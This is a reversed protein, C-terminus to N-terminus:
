KAKMRAELEDFFNFVVDFNTVDDEEEGRQILLVRDDPLIAGMNPVPRYKGFDPFTLVPPEPVRGPRPLLVRMGKGQATAYYLDQGDRSWAFQAAGDQSLQVPEGISGDPHFDRLYLESRPGEKLIYALRRGDPSWQGMVVGTGGLPIRTLRGLPGGPPPVDFVALEGDLGRTILCLISSGDPAWSMPTIGEDSDERRCLLRPPERGDLRYEYVGDNPAGAVQFYAIRTGDPSWLPMDCDAGPVAIVRQSSASGRTSVWIEYIAESNTIVSAFRQGDPSVTLSREFPQREGSWDTVSGDLNVIIAHRNQIAAGGSAYVLTGNDALDVEAHTWLSNARLGGMIAVPEGRVELSKLDFPVALLNGGRTFILHGTPAYYPSGGDQLILKTRGSKLDLVGIDQHFAAKEYSLIRVLVGRDHPLASTLIYIGSSDRPDFPVPKSLDGKEISFRMWARTGVPVIGVGSDLWVARGRRSPEADRIPVPPAGGDLPGYFVRRQSSRSSAPAVFIYHGDRTVAFGEVGDTGEILTFDSRDMRRVYLRQPLPGQGEVPKPAGLLVFYRGDSSIAADVARVQPPVPISARVPGALHAPGRHGGIVGAMNLAIAAGLTLGAGFVLGLAGRGIRRGSRGPQAPAAAIAEDRGGRIEEITLRAEGIDRLRRRPDKELARRLLQRLRAPTGPPLLSWEPERELIRAITDSVTEGQFARKGTLCEYVICGFAWIDTRRDVAKGRAQEPSLYPATGLIVGPITGPEVPSSITPSSLSAAPHPTPSHTDPPQDLRGKALGFDVIKVQDGPTIMVNGPKLDRHIVGQEHAAEMGSAIQFAVEITEHLALPGRAIRQALTEGEVHELALFPRGDSEVIDYIAAINPHNLSALLRSEREFRELREPESAVEVPLSKLAVTRGLRTDHALYVVGMGGRAIERELRYPGIM